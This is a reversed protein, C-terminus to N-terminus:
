RVEYVDSVLSHGLGWSGRREMKKAVPAAGMRPSIKWGGSCVEMWWWRRAVCEAVMGGAIFSAVMEVVGSSGCCAVMRVAESGVGDGRCWRWRLWRVVTMGIEWGGAAM